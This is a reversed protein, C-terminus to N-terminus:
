NGSQKLLWSNAQLALPDIRELAQSAAQSTLGNEDLKALLLAPIALRAEGEFSGLAHIAALKVMVRLDEMSRILAPVVLEPDLKLRGLASAAAIAALENTGEILKILLPIAPCAARRFSCIAQVTPERLGPWEKRELADCLAPLVRDPELQLQGLTQTAASVVNPESDKLCQILLPVAPLSDTELERLASAAGQRIERNQNTLGMMLSPLAFEAAYKMVYVAQRASSTAKPDNMIRTLAPVANSAETGLIEFGKMADAALLPDKDILRWQVHFKQLTRNCTDYFRTKADSPELRIWKLLCPVANSGIIRIAKEAKIRDEVTEASNPRPRCHQLWVRLKKGGFEPEPDRLAGLIIAAALIALIGALVRRLDVRLLRM